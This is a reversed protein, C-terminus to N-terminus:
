IPPCNKGLLCALTKVLGLGFHFGLPFPPYPAKRFHPYLSRVVDDGQPLHEMGFWKPTGGNQSVGMHHKWVGEPGWAAGLAGLAGLAELAGSM